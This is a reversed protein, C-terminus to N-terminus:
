KVSIVKRDSPRPVVEWTNQEHLADMEKQMALLYQDKDARKIAKQLTPFDKKNTTMTLVQPEQGM